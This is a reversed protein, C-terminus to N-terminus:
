WRWTHFLERENEERKEQHRCGEQGGDRPRLDQRVCRRGGKRGVGHPISDFIEGVARCDDDAVVVARGHVAEEGSSGVCVKEAIGRRIRGADTKAEIAGGDDTDIEIPRRLIGRAEIAGLRVVM